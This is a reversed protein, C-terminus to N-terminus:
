VEDSVKANVLKHIESELREKESLLWNQTAKLVGIETQYATVVCNSDELKKHLQQIQKNCKWHLLNM